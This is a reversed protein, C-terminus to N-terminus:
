NNSEECVYMINGKVAIGYPRNFQGDGSGASGANGIVNM